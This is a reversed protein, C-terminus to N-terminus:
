RIKELTLKRTTYAKKGPEQGNMIVDMVIDEHLEGYEIQKDSLSVYINGWFHTRGKIETNNTNFDLPNNMSNFQIIACLKGNEKTVGAWTILMDKNEITGLGEVQLKTNIKKAQYETNLKLSDWSNWAIIEYTFMDWALTKMQLDTESTVKFFTGNAMEKSVVYSYNKMYDQKEGETFIENFNQSHAIRVNNWKVSDNKFGRTYEATIRSKSGPNGYIDFNQNYMVLLYKQPTKEKLEIKPLSEKLGKVKISKQGFLSSASIILSVIIVIITLSNTKM